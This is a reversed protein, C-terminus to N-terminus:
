HEMQDKKRERETNHHVTQQELTQKYTQCFGENGNLVRNRSCLRIFLYCSKCCFNKIFMKQRTQKNTWNPTQKIIHLHTQTELLLFLVFVVLLWSVVFHYVKSTWFFVHFAIKTQTECEATFVEHCSRTKWGFM